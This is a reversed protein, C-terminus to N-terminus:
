NLSELRQVIDQSWSKAKEINTQTNKILPMFYDSEGVFHNNPMKDKMSTFTNSPNGGHTCFLAINKNELTVKDFFSSLAPTYTWAWIPTGIFITDYDNPNKDFPLLNPKEKMYVQKGGWFYKMFGKSQIEKEPKLVLVDANIEKAISDGILKTNGEFSYYIVLSKL